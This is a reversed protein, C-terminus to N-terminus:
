AHWMRNKKPITRPHAVHGHGLVMWYDAMRPCCITKQLNKRLYSSRTCTILVKDLDRSSMGVWRLNEVMRETRFGEDLGGIEISMTNQDQDGSKEMLRTFNTGLGHHDGIQHDSYPQFSFDDSPAYSGGWTDQNILQQSAQAVSLIEQLVDGHGNAPTSSSYQLMRPDPFGGTPFDHVQLPPLSLQHQLRACELAIDVQFFCCYSYM